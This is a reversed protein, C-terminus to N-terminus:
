RRAEAKSACTISLGAGESSQIAPHVPASPAPVLSMHRVGETRTAKGAVKSQVVVQGSRPITM